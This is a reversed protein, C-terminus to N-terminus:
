SDSKCLHTTYAYASQLHNFFQKKEAPKIDSILFNVFGSM